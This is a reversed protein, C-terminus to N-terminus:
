HGPSVPEFHLQELCAILLEAQLPDSQLGEAGYVHYAAGNEHGLVLGYHVESCEPGEEAKSSLVVYDRDHLLLSHTSLSPLSPPLLSLALIFPPLSAHLLPSLLTPPFLSPPFFFPLSSSLFFIFDKFIEVFLFIVFIPTCERRPLPM